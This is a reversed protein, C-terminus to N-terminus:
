DYWQVECDKCRVLEGEMIDWFFVEALSNIFWEKDHDVYRELNKNYIRFKM